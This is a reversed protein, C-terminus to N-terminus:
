TLVRLQEVELEERAVKARSSIHSFHKNNLTKLPKKINGLKQKLMYQLAGEKNTNWNNRVIRDFNEHLTWMNFFKFSNNHRKDVVDFAVIYCSHYSICGPALYEVFSNVKYCLWANNVSVRDLKSCVKTNMWTFFCGVSHMDVLELSSVCDEFDTTEHNRIVNGGKKDDPSLYSNFDGLVIWPDVLGNGLGKLSTWLPKRTKVSHLGYFFLLWFYLHLVFVSLKSM